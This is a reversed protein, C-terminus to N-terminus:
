VMLNPVLQYGHTDYILFILFFIFSYCRNELNHLWLNLSSFYAESFIWFFPPFLLNDKSLPYKKFYLFLYFMHIKYRVLIAVLYWSIVAPHFCDRRCLDLIAVICEVALICNNTSYIVSRLVFWEMKSVFGKKVIM